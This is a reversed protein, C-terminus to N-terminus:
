YGETEKINALAEVVENFHNTSKNPIFASPNTGMKYEMIKRTEYKSLIIKKRCSNQHSM